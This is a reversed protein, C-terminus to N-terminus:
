KCSSSKRCSGRKPGQNSPNKKLRTVEKEPIVWYWGNDISEDYVEKKAGVVQGNQIMQQLRSLSFGIRRAAEAKRFYKAKAM